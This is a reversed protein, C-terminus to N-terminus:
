KGYMEPHRRMQDKVNAAHRHITAWDGKLVLGYLAGHESPDIHEMWVNFDLGLPAMIEHTIHNVYGDYVADIQGESLNAGVPIEGTAAIHDIIDQRVKEEPVDEEWKDLADSHAKNLKETPSLEPEGDNDELAAENM